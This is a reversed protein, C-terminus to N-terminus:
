VARKKRRTFFFGVVVLLVAAVAGALYTVPFSQQPAGPLTSSATYPTTTSTQSTGSTSSTQLASSSATTTTTTVSSPTFSVTVVVNSGDVVVTGTTPSVSYGAVPQISYSYTGNAQVFFSLSGSSGSSSSGNLAVNWATGQALGSEEFTVAYGQSPLYSATFGGPFGDGLVEVTFPTPRQSSESVQYSFSTANLQRMPFSVGGITLTASSAAVASGNNLLSRVFVTYDGPGGTVSVAPEVYAPSVFSGNKSTELPVATQSNNSLQGSVVAGMQLANSEWSTYPVTTNTGPPGVMTLVLTYNYASNLYADFGDSSALLFGAKDRTIVQGTSPDYGLALTGNQYYYTPYVASGNPDDSEVVSMVFSVASEVTNAASIFGKLDQSCSEVACYANITQTITAFADVILNVIYEYSQSVIEGIDKAVKLYAVVASVVAAIFKLLTTASMFDFVKETSVKQYIAGIMSSSEVDAWTSGIASLISLIMKSISLTGSPCLSSKAVCLLLGALAFYLSGASSVWACTADSSTCSGLGQAPASTYSVLNLSGGPTLTMGLVSYPVGSDNEPFNIPLLADLIRILPIHTITVSKVSYGAPYTVNFYFWLSYNFAAFDAGPTPTITYSDVELRPSNSALAYGALAGAAGAVPGVFSGLLAGAAAAITKFTTVSTSVSFYPSDLWSNPLVIRSMNVVVTSPGDIGVIYLPPPATRYVTTYNSDFLYDFSSCPGSFGESYRGSYSSCYLQKSFTSGNLLYGLPATVNFGYSYTEYTNYTYCNQQCQNAIALNPGGPLYITLPFPTPSAYTGNGISMEMPFGSLCSNSKVAINGCDAFTVPFTPIVLLTGNAPAVLAATSNLVGVANPVFPSYAFPDGPNYAGLSTGTYVTSSVTSLQAHGREVVNSMFFTTNTSDAVVGGFGSGDLTVAQVLSNSDPPQIPTCTSCAPSIESASGAGANAVYVDDRQDIAVGMPNLGTALYGEPTADIVSNYSTIRLIELSRSDYLSVYVWGYVTSAVAAIGVPADNLPVNTVTAEVTPLVCAVSCGGPSLLIVSISDSGYDTVLAVADGSPLVPQGELVAISVPRSGVTLNQLAIGTSPDILTVSDSGQNVALVLNFSGVTAGALAVPDSGVKVSGQMGLFPSQTYVEVRNDNPDVVFVDGFAALIGQGTTLLVFGVQMEANKGAVTLIGKAPAAVYGTSSVNFSYGGDTVLFSIENGTSSKTTGPACSEASGGGTPVLVCPSLTVSWTSGPPLGSESFCSAYLAAFNIAVQGGGSKPSFSGSSPVPRYGAPASVCAKGVSIDQLRYDYTYASPLEFTIMAGNSSNTWSSGPHSAGQEGPWTVTVNWVTGRPLGSEDFAVQRPILSAVTPAAVIFGSSMSYYMLGNWPDYVAEKPGCETGYFTPGDCISPQQVSGSTPNYVLTSNGYDESDQLMYIEDNGPNFFLRDGFGYSQTNSGLTVNSVLQDSTGNVIFLYVQGLGYTDEETYLLHNASDYVINYVVSSPLTVNAVQRVTDPDFVTINDYNIGGYVVFLRNSYPDYVVDSPSNPLTANAVVSNTATNIALLTDTVDDTIYLYGNSSDLTMKPSYGGTGTWISGVYSLSSANIVVTSNAYAGTVYLLNNSADFVMSQSYVLYANIQPSTINAVIAGSFDDIVTISINCLCPGVFEESVAFIYGNNPDYAMAEQNGTYANICGFAQNVTPNAVYTQFGRFQYATDNCFGQSPASNSSSLYTTRLTGPGGQPGLGHQSAPPASAGSDSTSPYNVAANPELRLIPVLGAMRYALDVPGLRLSSFGPIYGVTATATTTPVPVGMQIAPTFSSVALLLLIPLTVVRATGATNRPAAGPRLGHFSAATGPRSLYMVVTLNAILAPVAAATGDVILLASIAAGAASAAQALTRAWAWRRAIGVAVAATVLFVAQMPLGVAFLVFSPGAIGVVGFLGTGWAQNM